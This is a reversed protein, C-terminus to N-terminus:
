AKKEKMFSTVIYLIEAVLYFVAAAAGTYFASWGVANETDWSALSAVDVARTDIIFMFAVAVAVVAVTKVCFTILSHAGFFLESFAAACFAILGVVSLVIVGAANTFAFGPKANSVLALIFGVLVLLTAVVNICFSVGIKKFM